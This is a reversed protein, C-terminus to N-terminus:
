LHPTYRLVNLISLDLRFPSNHIYLHRLSCMRHSFICVITLETSNDKCSGSKVGPLLALLNHVGAVNQWVVPAAIDFFLQSVCLLCAQDASESLECIARLLEPTEILRQATTM